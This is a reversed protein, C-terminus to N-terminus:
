NFMKQEKVYGKLMRRTIEDSSFLKTRMLFEIRQKM